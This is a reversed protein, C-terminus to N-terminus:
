LKLGKNIRRDSINNEKSHAGINFVERRRKINETEKWTTLLDIEQRYMYLMMGAKGLLTGDNWTKTLTVGINGIKPSIKNLEMRVYAIYDEGRVKAVAIRFKWHDMGEGLIPLLTEESTLYAFQGIVVASQAMESYNFGMRNLDNELTKSFTPM